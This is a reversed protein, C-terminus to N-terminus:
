PVFAVMVVAGNGDSVIELPEAGTALPAWAVGGGGDVYAKTAVDQALIPDTVDSIRGDDQVIPASNQIVKGSTGNFRAIANDTSSAPGTVDGAGILSLLEAYGITRAHGTPDTVVVGQVQGAGLFPRSTGRKPSRAM